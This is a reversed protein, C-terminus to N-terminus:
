VISNSLNTAPVGLHLRALCASVRRGRSITLASVRIRQMRCRICSGMRRTQATQERLSPDRFPGRKGGRQNHPLIDFNTKREPQTVRNQVDPDSVRTTTTKTASRASASHLMAEYLSRAINGGVHSLKPSDSVPFQLAPYSISLSSSDLLDDGMGPSLDPSADAELKAEQYPLAATGDQLSITDIALLPQAAASGFIPIQTVQMSPHDTYYTPQQQPALTASKYSEPSFM